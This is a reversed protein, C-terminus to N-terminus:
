SLLLSQLVFGENLGVKAVRWQGLQESLLLLISCKSTENIHFDDM